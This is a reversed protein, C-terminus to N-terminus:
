SKSLETMLSGVWTMVLTQMEIVKQHIGHLILMMMTM